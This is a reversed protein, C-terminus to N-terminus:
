AVASVPILGALALPALTTKGTGPPAALVATGTRAVAELLAPLADRIPLAPLAPPQPMRVM